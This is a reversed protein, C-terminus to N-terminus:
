RADDLRPIKREHYGDAIMREISQTLLYAAVANASPGLGMTRSLVRLYEFYEKSLTVDFSHTEGDNPHRPM